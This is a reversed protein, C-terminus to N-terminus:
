HCEDGHLITTQPFQVFTFNTTPLIEMSLEPVSPKTAPSHFAVNSVFSFSITVAVAAPMGGQLGATSPVINAVQRPSLFAAFLKTTSVPTSPVDSAEPSQFAAQDTDDKTQTFFM